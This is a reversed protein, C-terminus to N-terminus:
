TLASIGDRQPCDSRSRCSRTLSGPRWRWGSTGCSDLPVVGLSAGSVGPKPTLYTILDLEHQLRAVDAGTMQSNFRISFLTWRRVRGAPAAVQMM